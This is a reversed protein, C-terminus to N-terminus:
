RETMSGRATEKRDREGDDDDAVEAVTEGPQPIDSREVTERRHEVGRWRERMLVRARFSPRQQSSHEHHSNRLVMM